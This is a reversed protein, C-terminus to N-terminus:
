PKYHMDRSRVTAPIKWEMWLHHIKFIADDLFFLHVM